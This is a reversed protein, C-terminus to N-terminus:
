GSQYQFLALRCAVACGAVIGFLLENWGSALRHDPVRTLYWITLGFLLVCSVEAAIFKVMFRKWGKRDKRWREHDPHRLPNRRFDINVEAFVATLLGGAFLYADGDIFITNNDKAIALLIMPILIACIGWFLATRSQRLRANPM